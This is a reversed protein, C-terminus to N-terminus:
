RGKWFKPPGYCSILLDMGCVTLQVMMLIGHRIFAIDWMRKRLSFFFSLASLYAGEWRGKWFEHKEIINSSFFISESSTTTKAPLVQLGNVVGNVLIKLPPIMIGEAHYLGLSIKMDQCLKEM